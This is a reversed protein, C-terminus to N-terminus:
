ARSAEATYYFPLQRSAVEFGLKFITYNGDVSPNLKSKVQLAGGLVSTADLLYQVKIGKETVEPVGIMGSDLSLVRVRGALSVGRNKVVLTQDDVYADVGGAKALEDVQRLKAGSFAYNAIQKDTAQFDLSVGLDAAVMKALAKLSQQAGGSRAVIQGKSFSGTQAKLNLAIDPPQSPSASTIEGYFLRSTGTSVRGAEVILRKPTKNKNFPSTETLLYNRVDRSLNSITVECTNQKPNAFKEGRAVIDLGEYVKFAGDVEISVRVIRPDIEAVL